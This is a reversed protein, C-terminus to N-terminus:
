DFLSLQEYNENQATIQAVEKREEGALNDLIYREEIPTNYLMKGNCTIFFRARKLVIRMKKLMEFDIKSYQRASVIKKVGTPGIGPVRILEDYSATNVEIPFMGLHRIAWDCKPDIQENFFPNEESLLERSEFGYFRMLFDAQYLRHERLLPVPTGIEPLDPDDNVPVYGSFFVRKLDFGRYLSETTKILEYDTEGSAGIIMQTSQGATAFPRGIQSDIREAPLYYGSQSNLEDLVKSHASYNRVAGGSLFGANNTGLFGGDSDAGFINHVLHKNITARELRASKGNAIRNAAITETIRSMPNLINAMTKNPAVRQLSAQTPMEMNISVRDALLGASYILESSAGPIVKIHIYGNFMYKTRLLRLTECMKEMTYDPSQIVGSSLFLGEIYNRKYFETTLKCIEDPTFMTRVVDNTQRNKCYKCDYICHNTMLIKLLSVCRGDAAFSHCIGAACSNGLKGKQGRRDVGSSTCAVDYKAADSLIELKEMLGLDTQIEYM